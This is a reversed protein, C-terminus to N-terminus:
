MGTSMMISRIWCTTFLYLTPYRHRDPSFKPESRLHVMSNHRLIFGSPSMQRTPPIRAFVTVLSIIVASLSEPHTQMM